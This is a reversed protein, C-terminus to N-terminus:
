ELTRDRAKTQQVVAIESDLRVFFDTHGGGGGGGGQVVVDSLLSTM